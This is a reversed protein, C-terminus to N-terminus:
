VRWDSGLSKTGCISYANIVAVPLFITWLFDFKQLYPNTFTAILFCILGAILPILMDASYPQTRILEVARLILWLIASGYIIIGVIGTHFLLAVYSLEYEWPFHENRIISASAGHGAGLLPNEVWGNLLAFFQENRAYASVNNANNFEFGSIFDSTISDVPIHMYWIVVILLAILASGLKIIKKLDFHVHAVKLLLIIVFPALAAILWFVRRGILVLVVVSLLLGVWTHIRWFQNMRAYTKPMILLSLLFPFAYIVTAVNPLSYSAIGDDTLGFNAITDAYLLSVGVHILGLKEAVFLIGMMSSASAGSILIKMFPRIQEPKFLVGAFFLFVLPWIVFVTGVNLAGPAGRVAGNLMFMLSATICLLGLFAINRKMKWKNTWLVYVLSAIILLALIGGRELKYMTPFVLMFWFFIGGLAYTAKRLMLM